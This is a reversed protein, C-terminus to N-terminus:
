MELWTTFTILKVIARDRMFEKTNSRFAGGVQAPTWRTSEGATGWEEQLLSDIKM